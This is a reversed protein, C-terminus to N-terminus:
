KDENENEHKEKFDKKYSIDYILAIIHLLVIMTIIEAMTATAVTKIINMLINDSAVWFLRGFLGLYSIFCIIAVILFVDGGYQDLWKYAFRRQKKRKKDKMFNVERFMLKEQLQRYIM